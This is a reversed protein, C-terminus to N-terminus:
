VLIDIDACHKPIYCRTLPICHKYRATPTALLCHSCGLLYYEEFDENHSGWVECTVCTLSIQLQRHLRCETRHTIKLSGSTFNLPNYQIGQPKIEWVTATSYCEVRDGAQAVHLTRIWILLMNWHFCSTALIMDTCRSTDVCFRLRGSARSKASGLIIIGSLYKELGTRKQSFGHTKYHTWHMSKCVTIRPGWAGNRDKQIHWEELGHLYSVDPTM